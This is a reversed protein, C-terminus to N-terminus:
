PCVTLTVAVTVPPEPVGVPATLKTSPVVVFAFVSSADPTAVQVVDNETPVWAITAVYVPLM